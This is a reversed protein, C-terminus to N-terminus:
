PCRMAAGYGASLATIQSNSASCSSGACAVRKPCMDHLHGHKVMIEKNNCPCKWHVLSFQSRCPRGSSLVLPQNPSGWQVVLRAIGRANGLGVKSNGRVHAACSLWFGHCAALVLQSCSLLHIQLKLIRHYSRLPHNRNPKTRMTQVNQNGYWSGFSFMEACIRITHTTIACPKVSIFAYVARKGCSVEVPELLM